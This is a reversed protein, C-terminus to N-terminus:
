SARFEAPPQMIILVVPNWMPAYWIRFTWTNRWKEPFRSSKKEGKGAYYVFPTLDEYEDGSHLDIYYDAVTCNKKIASALRQTRTGKEDGPFQRNLNKRDELCLSGARQEFEEPCVVKVIM